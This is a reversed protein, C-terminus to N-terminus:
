ASAVTAYSTGAVHRSALVPRAGGRSPVRPRGPGPTGGSCITSWLAPVKAEERAARCARMSWCLPKMKAVLARSAVGRGGGCSNSPSVPWVGTSRPNRKKFSGANNAEASSRLVGSRIMARTITMVAHQNPYAARSYRM